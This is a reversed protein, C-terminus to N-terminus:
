ARGAFLYIAALLAVAALISAITHVVQLADFSLKGLSMLAGTAFLALGCVGMVLIALLLLTQIEVSKLAGSIRLVLLIVTALAILKHLNLPSCELAKGIQEVM